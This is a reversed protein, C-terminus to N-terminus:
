TTSFPEIVNTSPCEMHQAEFKYCSAGLQYTSTKIEEYSPAKQIRCADGKCVPKLLAMFGLGIVFSFVTNFTNSKLFAFM